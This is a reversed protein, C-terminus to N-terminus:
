PYFVHGLGAQDLNIGIQNSRNKFLLRTVKKILLAIECAPVVELDKVENIDTSRQEVITGDDGALKM